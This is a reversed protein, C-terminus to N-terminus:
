LTRYFAWEYVEDLIMQSQRRGTGMDQITLCETFDSEVHGQDDNTEIM